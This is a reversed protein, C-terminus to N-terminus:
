AHSCISAAYADPGYASIRSPTSLQAVAAHEDRTSRPADPALDRDRECRASPAHREDSAILTLERPGATLEGAISMHGNSQIDAVLRGPLPESARQPPIQLAQHACGSHQARDARDPTIRRGIKLARELDVDDPRQQRDM